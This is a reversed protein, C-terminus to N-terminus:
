YLMTYIALLAHLNLFRSVVVVRLADPAFQDTSLYELPDTLPNLRQRNGFSAVIDGRIFIM